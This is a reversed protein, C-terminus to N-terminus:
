QEKISPSSTLTVLYPHRNLTVPNEASRTSGREVKWLGRKKQIDANGM